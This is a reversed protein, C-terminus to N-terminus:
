VHGYIFACLKLLLSAFARESKSSSSVSPRSTPTAPSDNESDDSDKGSLGKAKSIAAKAM